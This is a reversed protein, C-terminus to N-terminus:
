ELHIYQMLIIRRSQSQRMPMDDCYVAEGTTHQLCSLHPVPHGLPDGQIDRPDSREPDMLDQASITNDTRGDYIQVGSIPANPAAYLDSVSGSTTLDQFLNTIMQLCTSIGWLTM